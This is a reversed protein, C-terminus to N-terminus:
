EDDGSDLIGATLYGRLGFASELSPSEADIVTLHGLPSPHTVVVRPHEASPVTVLDTVNADLRLEEPHYTDLDVYAIRRQGQPALWLKSAAPDRVAGLLDPGDFRTVTRDWLDLVDLGGSRGLLMVVNGATEDLREFTSALPLLEAHTTEGVEIEALDLFTVAPIGPAYLLARPAVTQDIPTPGDFRLIRSGSSQLHIQTVRTSAPEVVLAQAAEPAAVLLREEPGNAGDVSFLALDSPRTGLQIQSVNPVFDNADTSTGAPKPQLTIVSVDSTGLARLYLRPRATSFVVQDLASSPGGLSSLQVTFESRKQSLDLISVEVGSLVVALRRVQGAIEMPPSFAVSRPSSGDLSRLTETRVAGAGEGDLDVVAIENTNSLLSDGTSPAGPDFYLLAYRGDDSQTLGTFASELEYVRSDGGRGLATLAPRLDADASGGSLVLLERAGGEGRRPVRLRVNQRLPVVTPQAPAASGSVDLLRAEDHTTDVLVVHDEFSAIRLLTPASDLRVLDGGCAAGALGLLPLILRAVQPRQAARSDMKSPM